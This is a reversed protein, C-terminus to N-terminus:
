SIIKYTDKKILISDNKLVSVFNVNEDVIHITYECTDLLRVDLYKNLYYKIFQFNIENNVVYFNYEKTKLKINYEVGNDLTIKFSIFSVNSIEYDLILKNIPRYFCVKNTNDDYVIMKYDPKKTLVYDQNNLFMDKLDCFEVINVDDMSDFYCYEILQVKKIPTYNVNNFLMQISSFSYMLNYLLKTKNKYCYSAVGVFGVSGLIYLIM